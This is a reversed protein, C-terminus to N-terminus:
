GDMHLHLHIVDPLRPMTSLQNQVCVLSDSRAHIIHSCAFGVGAALFARVSAALVGAEAAALVGPEAPASM